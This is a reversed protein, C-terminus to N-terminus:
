NPSASYVYMKLLVTHRKVPFCSFPFIVYNINLNKHIREDDGLQQPSMFYQLSSLVVLFLSISYQIELLTIQRIWLYVILQVLQTISRM